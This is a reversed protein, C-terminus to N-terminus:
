SVYNEREIAIVNDWTRWYLTWLFLLSVESTHGTFPFARTRTGMSLTIFYAIVRHFTRTNWPGALTIINMIFIILHMFTMQEVDKTIIRIKGDVILSLNLSDDVTREIHFYKSFETQCFLGLNLSFVYCAGFRMTQLLCILVLVWKEKREFSHWGKYIFMHWGESLCGSVSGLLDQSSKRLWYSASLKFVDWQIRLAALSGNSISSIIGMLLHCQLLTWNKTLVTSMYIEIYGTSLVLINGTHCWNVHLFSHSKKM